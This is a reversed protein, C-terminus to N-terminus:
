RGGMCVLRGDATTMWLRGGALAIGDLVPPSPLEVESVISGDARSIVLLRGGRRGEYGAWPDDPYIKDPTGAVVLADAAVVMATPRVPIRLSWRDSPSRVTPTQSKGKRFGPDQKSPEPDATTKATPKAVPRRPPPVVLDAAFIEFGKEGPTFHGGSAGTKQRARVGYVGADDFVLYEAFPV